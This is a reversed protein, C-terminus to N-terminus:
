RGIRENPTIGRHRLSGWGGDHASDSHPARRDLAGKHLIPAIAASKRYKALINESFRYHQTNAILTNGIMTHKVLDIYVTFKKGNVHSKGTRAKSSNRGTRMRRTIQCISSAVRNDLTNRSRRDVTPPRDRAPGVADGAGMVRYHSAAGVNELFIQTPKRSASGTACPASLRAVLAHDRREARLAPLEAFPRAALHTM